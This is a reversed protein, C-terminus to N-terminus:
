LNAIRRTTETDAKLGAERLLEIARADFWETSKSQSDYHGILLQVGSRIAQGIRENSLLQRVNEKCREHSRTEVRFAEEETLGIGLPLGLEVRSMTCDTHSLVEIAVLNEGLAEVKQGLDEAAEAGVTPGANSWTHLGEINEGHCRHDVCCIRAVLPQKSM